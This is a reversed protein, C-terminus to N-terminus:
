VCASEHQFVHKTIIYVWMEGVRAKIMVSEDLTLTIMSDSHDSTAM